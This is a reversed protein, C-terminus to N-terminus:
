WEFNFFLCVEGWFYVFQAFSLERTKLSRSSVFVLYKAGLGTTQPEKKRQSKVEQEWTRMLFDDFSLKKIWFLSPKVLVFDNESLVWKQNLFTTMQHSKVSSNLALPGSGSFFSVVFKKTFFDSIYKVEIRFFLQEWSKNQPTYCKCLEFVTSKLIKSRVKKKQARAVEAGERSRLKLRLM